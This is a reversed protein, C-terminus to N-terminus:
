AVEAKEDIGATAYLMISHETWDDIPRAPSLHGKYMVALTDCIGLLEPLYSSIMVIAKGREALQHILRYIEAKSGIDVGRTPEDLFLIDNDQHLMRALCIKQQNGGSLETAPQLPDRFRVNLARLWKSGEEQEKRLSLFGTRAYRKLDSLTLNFLLPLNLALGEEKRDESLLDMGFELAKRPTVYAAKL